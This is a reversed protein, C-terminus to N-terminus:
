KLFKKKTNLYNYWDLTITKRTKKLKKNKIASIIEKVGYSISFKTKFNLKKLKQFSVMYSRHDPDGYWILNVKKPINRKVINALEKIKKTCNSSGVNFIEGNIKELSCELLMIQFRCTDKVHCFPRVQEGNRMIPLQNHNYAGESMANIALDFRMRKSIGFITAQRVIVVCYNNSRLKKIKLEAAYNAKSYTTLPNVKSNENVIKKQFGYISCSSPLIYRQVGNKKALKANRVRSKYNIDWTLKKFKEAGPDNSISALDIVGYINRFHKNQLKRVDVKKIELNKNKKLNQGFFFKDIAIVKYKRKLLMPILVNGIYGGAGTVLIKKM